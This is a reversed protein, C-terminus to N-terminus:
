LKKLVGYKVMAMKIFLKLKNNLILFPGILPAILGNNIKARYTEDIAKYLLRASVGGDRMRVTVKPLYATILAEKPRLLLEYDGSVKYTIDFLGYKSFLRKSHFTGVHWTIMKEKFLTWVWAEGVTDLVNLASNVLEIKSSVFELNERNSHQSIFNIYDKFANPYLLDDAGIFTIWDGSAVSIGKNWADYIGEDKESVTYKIYDKYRNIIDLTGDTSGGDIIILEYNKYEQELISHIAGELYSSANYVAIVISVIPNYENM